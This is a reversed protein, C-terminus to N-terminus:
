KKRSCDLQDLANEIESNNSRLQEVVEALATPHMGQGRAALKGAYLLTSGDLRGQNIQELIWARQEPKVDKFKNGLLWDKYNTVAESISAVKITGAYGGESFPNGFHENTKAASTRMTNIGEKTYVPRSDLDGRWEKSLDIKLKVTQLSLAEKQTNNNQENTVTISNNAKAKNIDGLLNNVRMDAETSSILGANVQMYTEELQEEYSKIEEETSMQRTASIRRSKTRDQYDEKAEAITETIAKFDNSSDLELKYTNTNLVSHSDDDYMEITRAGSGLPNIPMYISVPIGNTDRLAVPIRKLMLYVSDAYGEVDEKIRIKVYTHKYNVDEGPLYVLDTSLNRFNLMSIIDNGYPLVKDTSLDGKFQDTLQIFSELDTITEYPYLIASYDPVLSNDKWKNRFYLDNDAFPMFLEPNAMKMSEVLPALLKAQDEAPIFELFSNRNINIGTQILALKLLDNYFSNTIPNDRLDEFAALYEDEGMVEKPKSLLMVNQESGIKESNTGMLYKLVVNSGLGPLTQAEIRTKLDQLQKFVSDNTSQLLRQYDAKLEDSNTQLIYSIFMRDVDKAFKDYQQAGLNLGNLINYIKSLVVKRIEGMSSTTSEIAHIAKPVNYAKNGMYSNSHIDDVSSILNERARLRKKDQITQLAPDVVPNSDYNTDRTVAFLEGAIVSYSLFQELFLFQELNNIGTTVQGEKRNYYKLINEKLHANDVNQNEASKFGPTFPFMKTVDQVASRNILSMGADKTSLFKLYERIIPQNIFYCTTKPDVGLRTLAIAVALLNPHSVVTALFDETLNDVAGNVFESLVDSIFIDQDKVKIGSLSPYEVGDILTTNHPLIIEKQFFQRLFKPILELKSPNIYVDALQALAHNTQALAAIGVWPGKGTVAQLRKRMLIQPSLINLANSGFEQPAEEKLEESIPKIYDNSNPKVLRSFNTEHLILEGMTDFLANQTGKKQLAKAFREEKSDDMRALIDDIEEDTFDTEEELYEILADNYVSSSINKHFVENALQDYMEKTGYPVQRLDGNKDIYINKLYTTLKDIDFDAGTKTVIAEPLVVADGMAEPLFRKVVFAEISNMGQCPIRFGIGELIKKGEESENLYNILQEDTYDKFEESSKLINRFYCPMMVEVRSVKGDKNEYMKLNDSVYVTKGKVTKVARIGEEHMTATAMIKHGGNVRPQAVLKRVFSYLVNNIQTYYSTAEFPIKFNGDEDLELVAKKNESAGRAFESRLIRQVGKYDAIEFHDGKDEIGFIEFLEQMGLETLENKYKTYQQKLQYIRSVDAKETDTLSDWTQKTTQWDVKSGKFDIPVGQNFKDINVIKSPQTGEPAKTKRGKTEVQDRLEGWNLDKISGSPIEGTIFNGEKDYLDVANEQGIKIGSMMFPVKGLEMRLRMLANNPIHVGEKDEYRLMSYELPQASLKLLVTNGQSDVGTYIPKLINFYSSEPNGKEVLRKDRAELNDSKYKLTNLQEKTLVGDLLGAKIDKNILLRSMAMEYQFQKEDELTWTAARKKYQRYMPLSMMGHGDTAKSSAFSNDEKVLHETYTLVDKLPLIKFNDSVQEFGYDKKNLGQNIEESLEKTVFDNNSILQNSGSFFSKWRKNWADSQEFNGFYLYQLEVQACAFNVTSAMILKRFAEESMYNPNVRDTKVLAIKKYGNETVEIQGYKIMDAIQQDVTKNFFDTIAEKSLEPKTYDSFSSFVGKTIGQSLEYQYYKNFQDYADALTESATDRENVFKKNGLGVVWETSGDGPSLFTYYGHNYLDVVMMIRRIYDLKSTTVVKHTSRNLYGQIYGLKVKDGTPKGDKFVMGNIIKSVELFPTDFRKSTAKLDMLSTANNIDNTYVGVASPLTYSQTLNNEINYSTITDLSNTAELLYVALKTFNTNEKLAKNEINHGNANILAIRLDTINKIFGDIDKINDLAARPVDKIGITTLFTHINDLKQSTSTGETPAIRLNDIATSDLTFKGNSAKVLRSNLRLNAYISDKYRDVIADDQIARLQNQESGTFIVLAEPKMKSFTRFFDIRINAIDKKQEPNLQNEQGIKLRDALRQFEPYYAALEKIKSLKETLTNKEYLAAMTQNFMKQFNIMKELQTIPDRKISGDPNYERITALLLKVRTPVSSAIDTTFDGKTYLENRSSIKYEGDELANELEDMDTSISKRLSTTIGLTNLYENLLENVKEKQEVIKTYQEFLKDQQEEPIVYEGNVDKNFIGVKFQNDFVKWAKDLFKNYNGEGQLKSLNTFNEGEQLFSLFFNLAMNQVVQNASAQDLNELKVRGSYAGEPDVFNSLFPATKYYGAGLKKFTNEITIPNIGVIKKLFNLLSTFIRKILSGEKQAVKSLQGTLQYDRFEEAMAEKAQHPTADSYKIVKQAERDLFSGIRNKFENYLVTREKETTFMSWVAEFAEHYGTGEEANEVLHIAGKMFKGFYFGGSTNDMVVPVRDGLLEKVQNQQKEFTNTVFSTSPTIIRYDVPTNNGQENAAKRADAASTPTNTSPENNPPRLPALEASYVGNDNTVIFHLIDDGKQYSQAGEKKVLVKATELKDFFETPSTKTSLSQIAKYFPSDVNYKITLPTPTNDTNPLPKDFLDSIYASSNIINNDNGAGLDKTRGKITVPIQTETRGDNSTLFEEYTDWVKRDITGDAKKSLEVFPEQARLYQNNINIKINLLLDILEQKHLEIDEKTFDCIETSNGVTIKGNEPNVWVQNKNTTLSKGTKLFVIGQLFRTVEKTQAEQTNINGEPTKMAALAQLGEAVMTAESTSLFRRNAPIVLGNHIFYAVGITLKREVGQIAQVSTTAVTLVHDSPKTELVAKVSNPTDQKIISGGIVAFEKLSNPDFEKTTSTLISLRQKNWMESEKEALADDGYYRKKGALSNSYVSSTTPLNNVVVNELDVASGIKGIPEGKQNTFNWNGEADKTVFLAMIPGSNILWKKAAEDGNKAKEINVVFDDFQADSLFKRTLGDLGYLAENEPTVTLMRFKSSDGRVIGMFNNFRIVARKVYPTTSLTPTTTARFIQSAHKLAVREDWDEIEEDDKTFEINSDKTIEELAKRLNEKYEASSKLKEEETQDLEHAALLIPDVIRKGQPTSVILEGSQEDKGIIRVSKLNALEKNVGELAKEATKQSAYGTSRPGMTSKDPRTIVIKTTGDPKQVEDITAEFTGNKTYTRGITFNGHKTVITNNEKLEREAIAGEEMFSNLFPHYKAFNDFGQPSSLASFLFKNRAVGERIKYIDSAKKRLLDSSDLRIEADGNADRGNAEFELLQQTLSAPLSGKELAEDLQKTLSTLQFKNVRARQKADKEERTTAEANITSQTEELLEAYAVQLNELGEQTVLSEVFKPDVKGDTVTRISDHIQAIREAYDRNEYTVKALKSKYDEYTRQLNRVQEQEKTRPAAIFPYPNKFVKEIDSKIQSIEEVKALSKNIFDTANTDDKIGLWSVKENEPLSNIAKIQDTLLDTRGARHYLDVLNFFDDRVANKEGFVDGKNIAIGAAKKNAITEVLSSYTDQLTGTIGKKNITDIIEQYYQNPNGLGIKNNQYERYVHSAGGFLAGSLGGILFNQIGGDIDKDVLTKFFTNLASDMDAIGKNNYRKEYYDKTSNEIAKQGAEEFGESIMAKFPDSGKVLNWARSFKSGEEVGTLTLKGIADIDKISTIDKTVREITPVAGEAFGLGAKLAGGVSKIPRFFADYQFPNLFMLMGLNAVFRANGSQKAATEIEEYEPTGPLAEYGNKDIFSKLLDKKVDNYGSRAEMGAENYSSLFDTTLYGAANIAKRGAQLNAFSQYGKAYNVAAEPSQAAKAIREFASAIGAEDEALGLSGSVSRSIRGITTALGEAAEGLLPIDGVGGTLAGVVAMQAMIGLSTGAMFGANKIIDDFLFNTFGTNFPIMRLYPHDREYKSRYNPLIDDLNKLANDLSQNVANNWGLLDGNNTAGSTVIDIPGKFMEAFTGVTTAAMKVLSKGASQEWNENQAALDENDAFPKFTSYKSAELSSVPLQYVPEGGKQQALTNVSGWFGGGDQKAAHTVPDVNTDFRISSGQYEPVDPTKPVDVYPQEIPSVTVALDKYDPLNTTSM